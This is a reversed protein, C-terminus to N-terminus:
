AAMGRKTERLAKTAREFDPAARSWKAVLQMGTGHRRTAIIALGANTMAHLVRRDSGEFSGHWAWCDREVGRKKETQREAVVMWRDPRLDKLSSAIDTTASM